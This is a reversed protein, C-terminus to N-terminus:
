QISTKQLEGRILTQVRNSLILVSNTQQWLFGEGEHYYRGDGSQAELHGGSSVTRQKTDFICEPSRVILQVEGTESFMTLKLGRILVQTGSIPEAEAGELLTKMQTEHPQKHNELVAEFKKIKTNGFNQASAIVGLGALSLMLWYVPRRRRRKLIFNM